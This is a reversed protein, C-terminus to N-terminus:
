DRRPVDPVTAVVGDGCRIAISGYRKLAAFRGTVRRVVPAGGGSGETRVIVQQVPEGLQEVPGRDLSAQWGEGPVTVQGEVFLFTRHLPVKSQSINITEVWARWHGTASAHCPSYITRNSPQDLVCGPLLACLALAAVPPVLRM